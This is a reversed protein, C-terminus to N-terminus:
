CASRNLFVPRSVRLVVNRARFNTWSFTAWKPLKKWCTIAAPHFGLHHIAKTDYRIALGCAAAVGTWQPRRNPGAQLILRNADVVEDAGSGLSVGDPCATALNTAPDLGAAVLVSVVGHWGRFSM